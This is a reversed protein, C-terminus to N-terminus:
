ILDELLADTQGGAQGQGQGGKGQLEEMGISREVTGHGPEYTVEKVLPEKARAADKAVRAAKEAERQQLFHLSLADQRLFRDEPLEEKGGEGETRPASASTNGQQVAGTGAQRARSPAASGGEDEALAQALLWPRSGPDPDFRDAEADVYAHLLALFTPDDLSPAAPPLATLRTLLERRPLEIKM